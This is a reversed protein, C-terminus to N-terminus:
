VRNRVTHAGSLVVMERTGFGKRAFLRKLEEVKDGADPLEQEIEQDASTADTRGV